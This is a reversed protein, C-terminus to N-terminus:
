YGEEEINELKVSQSHKSKSVSSPTLGLITKEQIYKDCEMLKEQKSKSVQISPTTSVDNLNSPQLTSIQLNINHMTPLTMVEISQQLPKPITVNSQIDTVVDNSQVNQSSKLNYDQQIPNSSSSPVIVSSYTFSM